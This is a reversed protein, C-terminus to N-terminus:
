NRLTASQTTEPSALTPVAQHDNSPTRQRLADLVVVLVTGVTV